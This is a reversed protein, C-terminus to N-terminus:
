SERIPYWNTDKSKSGIMVRLCPRKVNRFYIPMHVLGKPIFVFTSTNIAIKETQEGEGLWFEVDAGLDNADKPNTGLFLFIEDEDHKHPSHRASVGCDCDKVVWLISVKSDSEKIPGTATELRYPTLSERDGRGWVENLDARKPLRAVYKEYLSDAM